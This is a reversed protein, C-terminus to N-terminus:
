YIARPYEIKKEALFQLIESLPPDAKKYHKLIPNLLTYIHAIGEPPFRAYEDRIPKFNVNQLFESVLKFKGKTYQKSIEARIDETLKPVLSYILKYNLLWSQKPFGLDTLFQDIRESKPLNKTLLRFYLRKPEKIHCILFQKSYKSLKNKVIFKDILALMGDSLNGTICNDEFKFFGDVSNYIDVKLKGVMYMILQFDIDQKKDIFNYFATAFMFIYKLNFKTLQIKMLSMVTEMDCIVEKETINIEFLADREGLMIAAKYQFLIFRKARSIMGYRKALDTLETKYEETIPKNTYGYFDWDKILNLKLFKDFQPKFASESPYKKLMMKLVYVALACGGKLYISLGSNLLDVLFKYYLHAENSTRAKKMEEFIYQRDCDNVCSKHSKYKGNEAPQCVDVFKNAPNCAYRSKNM